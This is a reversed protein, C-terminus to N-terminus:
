GLHGLWDVKGIINSSRAIRIFRRVNCGLRLVAIRVVQSRQLRDQVAFVQVLSLRNAVVQRKDVPHVVLFVRVGLQLMRSLQQTIRLLNVDLQHLLYEGYTRGM